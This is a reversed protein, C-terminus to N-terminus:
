EIYPEIVVDSVYIQAKVSQTAEKAPDNTYIRLDFKSYDTEDSNEWGKGENKEGIGTETTPVTGVTTSQQKFNIYFIYEEWTEATNPTRNVTTATFTTTVTNMAFSADNNANRCTFVLKSATGLENTLGKIKM